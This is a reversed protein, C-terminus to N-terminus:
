YKVHILGYGSNGIKPPIIKTSIINPKESVSLALYESLTLDEEYIAFEYM